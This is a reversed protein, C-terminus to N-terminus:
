RLSLQGQFCSYAYVRLPGLKPAVQRAILSDPVKYFSVRITIGNPYDVDCWRGDGKCTVKPSALAGGLETRAYWDAVQLSTHEPDDVEMADCPAVFRWSSLSQECRAQALAEDLTGLAEDPHYGLPTVLATYRRSYELDTMKETKRKLKLDALDKFLQPLGAIRKTLMVAEELPDLKKRTLRKLIRRGKCAAQYKAYLERNARVSAAASAAAEDPDYPLEFEGAFDGGFEQELEMELERDYKGAM